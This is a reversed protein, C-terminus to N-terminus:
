PAPWYTVAAAGLGLMLPLLYLTLSLWLPPTDNQRM